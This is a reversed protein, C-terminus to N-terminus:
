TNKKPAVMPMWHTVDGIHLSGNEMWEGSIYGRYGFFMYGGNKNSYCLVDENKNPLSDVVSIWQQELTNVPSYGTDIWQTGMPEIYAMKQLNETQDHFKGDVDDWWGIRGDPNTCLTCNHILVDNKYLKINTGSM